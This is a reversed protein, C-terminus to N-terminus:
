VLSKNLGALEKSIEWLRGSIEREYPRDVRSAKTGQRDQMYCKGTIKEARKSAALYLGTRAAKEASILMPSLLVSMLVFSLRFFGKDAKGLNTRVAASPYYSNVTVGTGALRRALEYTFLIVALKSQSYAAMPSYKNEGMLDGFDIFAKKQSESSVNIIRSPASSKLVDLLLNTFLFPALYNVAFTSEIGDDTMSREFFLAGANNILVDLRRYKKRFQEAGNRIARQSSLDVLLLELRSNQIRSKIENLASEGRHRDRCVMIVEAGYGALALSLAKGIGSNAGTVLCRKGNV